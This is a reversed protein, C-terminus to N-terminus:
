EGDFGLGLELNTLASQLEALAHTNGEKKALLVGARLTAIAKEEDGKLHRLKGLHYYTPLYEPHNTELDEYWTAAEKLNGQGMWETALAYKLFPDKPNEKLFEKLKELRSM